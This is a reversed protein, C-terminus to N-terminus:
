SYMEVRDQVVKVLNGLGVEIPERMDGEGSCVFKVQACGQEVERAGVVVVVEAGARIARPVAKSLKSGEVRAVAKLGGARLDRAIRRCMQGVASGSRGAEKGHGVVAVGGVLNREYAEVGASEAGLGEDEIRDLGIAFGVGSAGVVDAYRGGACVARGGEGDFEFATSTYYDLGRVLREDVKFPVEAEKLLEQLEHFRDREEKGVFEPLGPAGVLADVDEALKSDLIRMCNGADFRERSIRSMAWYRDKLWERLAANYTQRDEKTGLTNVRLGIARGGAERLFGDAMEIVEADTAVGATGVCEVGMQWFQRWRGRQPRERRLMPGAYWVRTGHATARRVLGVEALARAVGATGEPRLAM